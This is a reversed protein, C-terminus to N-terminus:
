HDRLIPVALQSLCVRRHRHTQTSRPSKESRALPRVLGPAPGGGSSATSALRCVPCDDPTRPKLLRHVTTRVTETKFHIPQSPALWSALALGSYPHPLVLMLVFVDFQFAM